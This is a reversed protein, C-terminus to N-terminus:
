ADSRRAFTLGDSIPLMVLEVRGDTAVHDNFARLASTNEDAAAPDAVQGRWLVNDVLIVGGPRMRPVLEEWYAIYNPKDADIFALDISPTEPLARLSDLAPGIVLEVRDAVGAAEWAERAVSTWEDSVDFCLLKAEPDLGLAISLSSMGTFTGVEVAHRPAIVKTLLTLFVAQEPAVQMGSLAGLAATRDVLTLRHDELPTSHAVLYDHLTESLLFSKPM